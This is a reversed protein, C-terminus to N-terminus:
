VFPQVWRAPESPGLREWLLLLVVAMAFGFALLVAGASIDKSRGITAHQEPHLKDLMTEFATNVLEVILILFYSLVFFALEWPAFPFLFWGLLLYMPLGAHVELRFSHDARYAHLLGHLGYRTSQYIKKIAHMM